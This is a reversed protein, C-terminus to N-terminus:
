DEVITKDESPLIMGGEVCNHYFKNLVIVLSTDYFFDQPTTVLNGTVKLPLLNFLAQGFRYHYHKGEEVKVWAENIYEQAKEQSIKM